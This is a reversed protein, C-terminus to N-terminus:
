NYCHKKRERDEMKKRQMQLMKEKMIEYETKHSKNRLVSNKAPVEDINTKFLSNPTSETWANKGIEKKVPVFKVNNEEAVSTQNTDESESDTVKDDLIEDGNDTSLNSALLNMLEKHRRELNKERENNMQILTSKITSALHTFGERLLQQVNIAELPTDTMLEEDESMQMKQVDTLIEIIRKRKNPVTEQRSQDRRSTKSM